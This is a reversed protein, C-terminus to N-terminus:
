AAKGPNLLESAAQAFPRSDPCPAKGWYPSQALQRRYIFGALLGIVVRRFGVRRKLEGLYEEFSYRQYRLAAQSPTTDVWNEYFWSEDIEPDPLRYAEKPLPKLGLSSVLAATMAGGTQRWSEGPGGVDFTKGELGPFHAANAVALGADRVDIAQCRRDYSLIFSFKQMDPDSDAIDIPLVGCLRVICWRLGSARLIDEAEVKQRGYDDQPNVPTEGTWPPLQRAPNGPGHVSYSSVFVFREITGLQKATESLNRMGGVNVRFALEPNKISLPPIVAAVHAVSTAQSKQLATRVSTADTLDGWVTNFKLTKRLRKEKALTLPSQKEFCTVEYDLELLERLAWEGVGGFAGTLFVHKRGAKETEKGRVGM